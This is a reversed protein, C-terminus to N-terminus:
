AAAIREVFMYYNADAVMPSSDVPSDPEISLSTLFADKDLHDEVVGVVKRVFLSTIQRM